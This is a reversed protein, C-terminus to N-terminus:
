ELLKADNRNRYKWESNNNIQGVAAIDDTFNFDANGDYKAGCDRTCLLYVHSFLSNFFPDSRHSKALSESRERASGRDAIVGADGM